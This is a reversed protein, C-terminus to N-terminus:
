RVNEIFDMISKKFSQKSYVVISNQLQKLLVDYDGEIAKKIKEQADKKDGQKYRLDDFPVTEKHASNDPVIPICGAAISEIISIGFTEPSAHFYVRCRKLNEIVKDRSINKLLLIKEALNQNKIKRDLNQYYVENVKTKTNGIITYSIDIESLVDLAFELNKEQSYRSITLVKQEKKVSNQFADIDVPPYIVFSDKGFRNKLSNQIFKSNAVLIINKDGIQNVFKQSLVNYPKYYASWIGKYKTIDKETENKFDHHCYIIIKQDKRQPLALGGSVQIILDDDRAKETLKSELYRQYLGFVPLRFPFISHIKIKQLQITPKSVTYLNVTHKHELLAEILALLTVETGGGGGVFGHIIGIKM